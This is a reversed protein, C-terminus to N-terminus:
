MAPEIWGRAAFDEMMGRLRESLQPSAEVSLDAAILEHIEDQTTPGSEICAMVAAELADCALMQGSVREFAVSEDGWGRWHLEVLPNLRWRM